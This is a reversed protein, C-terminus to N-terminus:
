ALLAEFRMSSAFDLQPHDAWTRSQFGLSVGSLCMSELRSIPRGWPPGRSSWFNLSLAHGGDGDRNHDM